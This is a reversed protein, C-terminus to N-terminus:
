GALPPPLGAQLPQPLQLSALEFGLEKRGYDITVRECRSLCDMGILLAPQQNLGWL